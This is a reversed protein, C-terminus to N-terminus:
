RITDNNVDGIAVSGGGLFTRPFAL